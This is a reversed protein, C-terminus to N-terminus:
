RMRTYRLYVADNAAQKIDAVSDRVGWALAQQHLPLHGFDNKHITFAERMMDNRKKADLEIAISQTLDEVKPNSYRGSNWSGVDQGRMTVINVLANHGDYTGPTWGLMYFSTNNDEKKGIKDFHKGKTQANLKIQIGIRSLMPVVAQCIAEDNVYRDNPCDLTV